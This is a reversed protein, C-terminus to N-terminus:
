WKFHAFARNAEAMKHTDERKKIAQGKNEYADLIEFCLRSQMNKEKRKQAAALLWRMALTGRRSQRVEVPVQYTSGGVRRSKVEVNPSIKVIVDEVLQEPNKHGKESIMDIAGYLIREAISKKGQNMIINIFKSMTTSQYKPDLPITRQTQSRRRSM